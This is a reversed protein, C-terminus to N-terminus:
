KAEVSNILLASVLKQFDANQFNTKRILKQILMYTAEDAEFYFRKKSFTM